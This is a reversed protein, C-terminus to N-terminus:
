GPYQDVEVWRGGILEEVTVADDYPMGDAIGCRCLWVRVDGTDIKLNCTQGTALTPLERLEEAREQLHFM